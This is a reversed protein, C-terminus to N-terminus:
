IDIIGGKVLQIGGEKYYIHHSRDATFVGKVYRRYYTCLGSFGKLETINKPTAWYLIARINEMHVQVGSASIVHGLYLM